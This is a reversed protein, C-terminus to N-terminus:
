SPPSGELTEKIAQAYRRSVKRLYGRMFPEGVRFLGHAQVRTHLSVSSGGNRAAVAYYGSFDLPGEGPPTRWDVRRPPDTAVIEHTGTVTRRGPKMVQRYRAGPEGAVGEVLESTMVDARWQVENESNALFDYVEDPPRDVAITETHELM